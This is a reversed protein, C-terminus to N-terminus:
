QFTSLTFPPRVTKLFQVEPHTYKRQKLQTQISQFIVENWEARKQQDESWAFNPWAQQKSIALSKKELDQLLNLMFHAGRWEDDKFVKTGNSYRLTLLHAPVKLRDHDHLTFLRKWIFPYSPAFLAQQLQQKNQPLAPINTTNQDIDLRLTREAWNATSELYWPNKFQSYSYQYLHFLEHTITTWYNGPFDKLNHSVHLILACPMLHKTALNHYQTAEEFALGNGPMNKVFIAIADINKYRPSDLPHRFGAAKFLERSAQAQLAIDKIYHPIKQKNSKALYHQSQPLDSYYIYFEDLQYVQNFDSAWSPSTSRCTTEAYTISSYGCALFLITKFLNMHMSGVVRLQSDTYYFLSLLFKAKKHDFSIKTTIVVQVM